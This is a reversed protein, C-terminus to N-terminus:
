EENEKFITKEVLEFSDKIKIDYEKAVVLAAVNLLIGRESARNEIENIVDNKELNKIESIRLIITDIFKNKEEANENKEFTKKSPYFGIPINIKEINFSPTLLGDKKILLKKELIRNVFEHADKTSFWELEFSLPLYIEPESLMNKGSRKFLFTIIIEEESDMKSLGVQGKLM